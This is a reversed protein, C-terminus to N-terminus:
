GVPPLDLPAACDSFLVSCCSGLFTTKCILSIRIDVFVARGFMFLDSVVISRPSHVHVLLIIRCWLLFSETRSRRNGGGGGGAPLVYALKVSSFSGIWSFANGLSRPSRRSRPKADVFHVGWFHTLHQFGVKIKRPYPLARPIFTPIEICARKTGRPSIPNKVQGAHPSFCTQGSCQGRQFSKGIVSSFSKFHINGFVCRSTRDWFQGFKTSPTLTPKLFTLESSSKAVAIKM